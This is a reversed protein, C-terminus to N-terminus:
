VGIICREPTFYTSLTKSTLLVECIVNHPVRSLRRVATIKARFRKGTLFVKEVMHALM